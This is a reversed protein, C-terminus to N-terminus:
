ARLLGAMNDPYRVELIIDSSRSRQYFICVQHDEFVLPISSFMCIFVIESRHLDRQHGIYAYLEFDLIRFGFDSIRVNTGM